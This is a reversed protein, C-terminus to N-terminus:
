RQRCRWHLDSAIGVVFYDNGLGGNIRTLGSIQNTFSDAADSGNVIEISRVTLSGTQHIIKGDETRVSTLGDLSLTDTGSGGDVIDNGSSGSFHDDDSEGFLRDDGAGGDLYDNGSGSYILDNGGGGESRDSLFGSLIIEHDDSGLITTQNGTAVITTVFGSNTNQFISGQKVFVYREVDPLGSHMASLENEIGQRSTYADGLLNSIGPRTAYSGNIQAGHNWSAATADIAIASGGLLDIIGDSVDSGSEKGAALKGAFTMIIRGIESANNSLWIWGSNAERAVGLDSMDNFLARAGASGFPSGPLVSYALMTAMQYGSSAYGTAEGIGEAGERLGFSYGIDDDFLHSLTAQEAADWNSRQYSERGFMLLVHLAQSHISLPDLFINNQPLSQLHTSDTNPVLNRLYMLVEGDVYYGHMNNDTISRIPTTDGIADRRYIENSLANSAALYGPMMDFTIAEGGTIGSMFGALGGGLSHGTFTVQTPGDDSFPNRGTVTNYFREAFITQGYSSLGGGTLWGNVLDGGAGIIQDTGRFSIITGYTSSAYSAAMFGYSISDLDTLDSRQLLSFGSFATSVGYIKSNYGRNYSDLSLVSMELDKSM